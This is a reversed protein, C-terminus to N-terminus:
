GTAIQKVAPNFTSTQNHGERKAQYLALDARALLEDISVSTGPAHSTFGVRAFDKLVADGAAQGHKNNIVKFHDLDIIM